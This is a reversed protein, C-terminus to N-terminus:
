KREGLFKKKIWKILNINSISMIQAPTHEAFGWICLTLLFKQYFEFWYIQCYVRLWLIFRLWRSDAVLVYIGGDGQGIPRMSKLFNGLDGRDHRYHILFENTVFAVGTGGSDELYDTSVRVGNVTETVRRFKPYVLLNSIGHRPLYPLSKLFDYDKTDM